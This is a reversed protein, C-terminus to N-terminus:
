GSISRLLKINILLRCIGVAHLSVARAIKPALLVFGANTNLDCAGSQEKDLRASALGLGEALVAIRAAGAFFDLVDYHDRKPLFDENVFALMAM